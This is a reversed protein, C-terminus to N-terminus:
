CLFIFLEKSDLLAICILANPLRNEGKTEMIIYQFGGACGM